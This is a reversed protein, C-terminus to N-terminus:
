ALFFLWWLLCIAISALSVLKTREAILVPHGLTMPDNSSALLAGAAASGAAALTQLDPHKQELFEDILWLAMLARDTPRSAVVAPLCLSEGRFPGNLLQAALGGDDALEIL